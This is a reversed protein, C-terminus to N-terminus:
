SFIKPTGKFFEEPRESAYAASSVPKAAEIFLSDIVKEVGKKRQEARAAVEDLMLKLTEVKDVCTELMTTLVRGANQTSEKAIVCEILIFLVKCCLTWLASTFTPNHLHTSYLEVIKLVQPGTLESRQHHIYDGVAM